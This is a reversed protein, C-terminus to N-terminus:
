DEQNRDVFNPDRGDGNIFGGHDDDLHWQSGEGENRDVINPCIREM